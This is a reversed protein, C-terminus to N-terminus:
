PLIFFRGEVQGGGSKNVKEEVVAWAPLEFTLGELNRAVMSEKTLGAEV